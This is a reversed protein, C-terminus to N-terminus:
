IVMQGVTQCSQDLAQDKHIVTIISDTIDRATVEYSPFIQAFKSQLTSGLRASDSCKLMASLSALTEGQGRAIDGTLAVKNAVVFRDMRSAVEESASDVCNSTGFTIGFTQNYATENTTAAFIQGGQKGVVLSGLGCGAMGYERSFSKAAEKKAEKAFAGQSVMGAILVFTVFVVKKM